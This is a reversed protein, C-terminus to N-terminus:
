GPPDTRAGSGDSSLLRAYLVAAVSTALNLSSVGPRMPLAVVADARERVADSLGHREAGFALVARPDLAAPHLPDGDPDLAVLPRDSPLAAVVTRGVPLAFQLGAAGRVAQPHWPDAEGTTLVAAAGAAAAVRVAAGVNGLHRPGDLLVVPGAGALAGPDPPPPREALAVVEAGAAHPALARLEEPAATRAHDRLWPAVDPALRAALAALHAPDATIAHTITAGFRLAHKVPHLGALVVAAAPPAATV